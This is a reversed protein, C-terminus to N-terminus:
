ADSNAPIVDQRDTNMITLVVLTLGLVPMVITWFSALLGVATGVVVLAISLTPHATTRFVGILVMVGGGWLAPLWFLLPLLPDDLRVGLEVFGLILFGGGVVAGFIRRARLIRNRPM